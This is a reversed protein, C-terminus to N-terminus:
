PEHQKTESHIFLLAFPLGIETAPCDRQVQATNANSMLRLKDTALAAWDSYRLGVHLV